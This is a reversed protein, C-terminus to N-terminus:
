NLTCSQHAKNQEQYVQLYEYTKGLKVEIRSVEGDMRGRGIGPRGRGEEMSILKKKGKHNLDKRVGAGKIM